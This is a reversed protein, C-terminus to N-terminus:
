GETFIYSSHTVFELKNCQCAEMGKVRRHEFKGLVINLATHGAKALHLLALKGHFFVAKLSDFVLRENAGTVEICNLIYNLLSLARSGSQSTRSFSFLEM